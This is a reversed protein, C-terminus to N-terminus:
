QYRQKIQKPKTWVKQQHEVNKAFGYRSNFTVLFEPVFSFLSLEAKQM